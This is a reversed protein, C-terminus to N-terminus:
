GLWVILCMISGGGSERIDLIELDIELKHGGFSGTTEGIPWFM